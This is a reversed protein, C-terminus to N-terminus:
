LHMGRRKRQRRRQEEEEWPDYSSGGGGGKMHKAENRFLIGIARETASDSAKGLQRAIVQQPRKKLAAAVKNRAQRSDQERQQWYRPVQRLFERQNKALTKEITGLSYGVESGKIRVKKDDEFAIGRGKDVQYGKERIKREFEHYNRTGKLAQQINERLEEKRTDKRPIQREKAALFRRPSLVEQLNYEKELRRCLEAVRRYSNSDNVVKGEYGVRNAVIHIHPQKTDKHLVCIYQNKEFQFEKAAKRAVGRWQEHSLQDGQALRIALHLVPKEVNKNLRRVDKFQESLEHKDGFCLNYDLVEARNHHQVEEERSLQAKQEESLKQKDELCYTLCHYFSKGIM